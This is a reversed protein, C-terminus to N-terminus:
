EPRFMQQDGAEVGLIESFEVRFAHWYCRWRRDGALFAGLRQIMAQRAAEHAADGSLNRYGPAALDYLEDQRDAFNCVYFYHRGDPFRHQMAVAPNPALHWGSEMIFEHEETAALGRALPLLSRGDLRARPCVGAAELITPAVDLLSVPASVSTGARERGPLRLWLPVRVVKPHLYTGKDVLGREGNMEGHDAAFIIMTEDDLGEERLAQLFVGLAADVVEMELLNAVIHDRMQEETHLGHARRYISYVKPEGPLPQCGATVAERFSDPLQVVQRLLHEREELGAPIMFPQHPEFFDLQLYLPKGAAHWRRLLRLARAAREATFYAYTATLPFPTGDPQEVWGGYLNGPTKRDQRLGRIERAFRLGHVNLAELYAHYEDDDWIPPAWRDWPHVNEGFAQLFKDAGVHCKGFHRTLYGSARLYEPFIPDDARLRFAMGDHAREENAVVYTYRGTLLAARSPGCLPSTSFANEFAVSEFQLQDLQPLRLYQRYGDCRWVEPPVMDLTILVIHHRTATDARTFPAYGRMADVFQLGRGADPM